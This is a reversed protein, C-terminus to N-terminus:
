SNCSVPFCFNETAFSFNRFSRDEKKKYATRLAFVASLNVRKETALIMIEVLIANILSLFHSHALCLSLSSSPPLILSFSLLAFLSLSLPSLLDIPNAPAIKCCTGCSKQQTSLSEGYGLLREWSLTRPSRSLIGSVLQEMERNGQPHAGEIRFPHLFPDRPAGGRLLRCCFSFGLERNLLIIPCPFILALAGLSPTLKIEYVRFLPRINRM